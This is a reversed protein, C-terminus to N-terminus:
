FATPPITITNDNNSLGRDNISRMVAAGVSLSVRSGMTFDTNLRLSQRQAGTGLMTGYDQKLGGSLFYRAPESGGILTLGTEYSLSHQVYLEGQYDYFPNPSITYASDVLKQARASDGVNYRVADFAAAKNPFVRSGPLRIADYRGVRHTVHFQTEGHRGRKTTIIVVGNTARSGYISASAAAGELV